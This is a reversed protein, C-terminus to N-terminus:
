CPDTETSGQPEAVPAWPWPGSIHGEVCKPATGCVVGGVYPIKGFFM